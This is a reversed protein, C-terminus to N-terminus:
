KREIEDRLIELELWREEAEAMEGESKELKAVTADFLDPGRAYFDPDSLMTQLELIDVRLADM